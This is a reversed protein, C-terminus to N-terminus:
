LLRVLSPNANIFKKDKLIAVIDQLAYKIHDDITITPFADGHPFYDVTDADRERRTAPIFCRVCRYHHLSPGIYWGEEGHYAWSARKQPKNHILVKTGPPALPTKDFLFPGFLFAYASLSPTVRSNRLLNITM